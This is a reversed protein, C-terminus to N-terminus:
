ILENGIFIPKVTSQTLPYLAQSLELEKELQLKVSSIVKQRRLLLKMSTIQLETTSNNENSIVAFASSSRIFEFSLEVHPILLRRQSCMEHFIPTLFTCEKSQDFWSGRKKFSTEAAAAHATNATPNKEHVYGALRLRTEISTRTYSLLTQLFALYNYTSYADSILQGQIKFNLASFVCPAPLNITAYSATATQAPLTGNANTTLKLKIEVLSESLCTFDESPQCLFTISTSTSAISNLPNVEVTYSRDLSTELYPRSFLDLSESVCELQEVGAAKTLRDM